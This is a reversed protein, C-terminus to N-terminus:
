LANAYAQAAVDREYQRVQANYRKFARARQINARRHRKYAECVAAPEGIEVAVLLAKNWRRAANVFVQINM